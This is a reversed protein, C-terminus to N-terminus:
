LDKPAVTLMREVRCERVNPNYAEFTGTDRHSHKAQHLEVNLELLFQAFVSRSELNDADLQHDEEREPLRYADIDEM